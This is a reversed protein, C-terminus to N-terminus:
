WPRMCCSALWLRVVRVIAAVSSWHSQMLVASRANHRWKPETGARGVPAFFGLECAARMLRELQSRDAGTRGALQTLSAPGEALAEPVGLEILAHVLHSRLFGQSVQLAHLEPPRLLVLLRELLAVLWTQM